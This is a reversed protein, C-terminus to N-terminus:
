EEELSLEFTKKLFVKWIGRRYVFVITSMNLSKRLLRKINITFINM